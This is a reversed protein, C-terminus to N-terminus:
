LFNRPLVLSPLNISSRVNHFYTATYEFKARSQLCEVECHLQTTVSRLIQHFFWLRQTAVSKSLSRFRNQLVTRSPKEKETARCGRTSFPRRMTSTERDCESADCKIPSIQVLSWDSVSVDIGKAPNSVAIGACSHGCVWEKSLTAMAIPLISFFGYVIVPIRLGSSQNYHVVPM